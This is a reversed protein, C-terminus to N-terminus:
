HFSLLIYTAIQLAQKEPIMADTFKPMGPGPNRMKEVIDEPTTIDSAQLDTARLTKTPTLTNAGGPHCSACHLSFLEGGSQRDMRDRCGAVPLTVIAALLLLFVYLVKEM